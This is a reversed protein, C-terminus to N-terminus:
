ARSVLARDWSRAAVSAPFITNRCVPMNPWTPRATVLCVVRCAGARGAMPWGCKPDPEGVHGKPVALSVDSAM